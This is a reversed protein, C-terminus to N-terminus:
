NVLIKKSDAVQGNVKIVLSYFGPELKSVDIVKLFSDGQMTGMELIKLIGKMNVLELSVQGHIIESSSVRIFETAPNPYVQFENKSKIPAVNVTSSEYVSDSILEIGDGTGLNRSYKKTFDNEWHEHVGLSVAGVGDGEPDYFTGSPPNEARAAEHLYNDVNGFVHVMDSSVKQEATIFDLCVSELAVGDQSVFLSSTWQNNFPESVWKTSLGVKSGQEPAAYLGDVMFLLTKEGLDNHAMLDVLTNYTAMDRPQMYTWFTLQHVVAYPHVGAAKPAAASPFENSKAIFSGFHNKACFSVGALNHAKLNGLNILYDADSVCTPLYTDNGGEEELTLKESWKVRCTSDVSYKQRGDGGYFDVFNLTPFEAKCKDYIVNAIPRSVDYLSINSPEVGVINILQRLLALVVQPSSNTLNGPNSTHSSVTNMNIKIAIKEGPKYDSLGKDHQNNFYMFIGKWAEADSSHGSLRKISQSFMKEVEDINTNGDEWWFGNVGNWPTAKQHHIWVVRGPFIGRATGMPTLPPDTPSFFDKEVSKPEGFVASPNSLSTVFGITIVAIILSSVLVYNGKIRALRLQKFIRASVFFGCLWLIFGAGISLSAQQCPYAARSPKPIVRVLFWLIALLGTGYFFMKKKGSWGSKSQKDKQCEANDPKNILSSKGPNEQFVKM